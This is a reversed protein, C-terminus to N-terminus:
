KEDQKLREDRRKQRRSMFYQFTAKFIVALVIIVIMMGAGGGVINPTQFVMNVVIGALVICVLFVASSNWWKPRYTM